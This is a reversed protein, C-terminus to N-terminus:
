WGNIKKVASIDGESPQERTQYGSAYLMISNSDFAGYQVYGKKQTAAKQADVIFKRELGIEQYVKQKWEDPTDPRDNEHVLGLMHGIEHIITGIRSNQGIELTGEKGRGVLDDGSDWRGGIEAPKVLIKFMANVETPTFTIGLKSMWTNFAKSIDANLHMNGKSYTINKQWTRKNHKATDLGYGM